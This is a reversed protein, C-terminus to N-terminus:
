CLRAFLASATLAIVGFMLHAMVKQAGRVRVWRAGYREKLLSNVREASTRQKFREVTAPDMPRISKRQPMLNIIPIHGLQRSFDWILDADYASDMVDYLSTVRKATMQMLPVAVQSDHLSASTLLASVPIDGDITDLHLKYGDWSEKYGRSNKKTGTNCVKPLDVLNEELTRQVQLELRKPPVSEQAKGKAKPGPKLRPRVIKEAKPQPREPAPIATADRSVHGVLKERAHIMIMQEHIRQPLEDAAFTAFARSFTSESPIDGASEWGCLRRLTPQGKLAAILAGTTPLQYVSKAIFAHILWVRAHPPCGNGVWEYDKYFPQLNILSVVQCFQRDLSSIAGFEADLAPFLQRQLYFLM